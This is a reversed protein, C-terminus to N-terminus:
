NASSKTDVCVPGLTWQRVWELTCLTYWASTFIMLSFATQGFLPNLKCYKKPDPFLERWLNMSYKHQGVELRLYDRLNGSAKMDQPKSCTGSPAQLWTWAGGWSISTISLWGGFGDWTATTLESSHTAPFWIENDKIPDWSKESFVYPFM